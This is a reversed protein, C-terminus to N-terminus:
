VSKKIDYFLRKAVEIAEVHIDSLHREDDYIYRFELYESLASSDDQGDIDELESDPPLSLNVGKALFYAMAQARQSEETVGKGLNKYFNGSHFVRVVRVKQLDDGCYQLSLCIINLLDYVKSPIERETWLIKCCASGIDTWRDKSILGANEFHILANLARSPAVITQSIINGIDSFDAISFSRFDVCDNGINAALGFLFEDSTELEHQIIDTDLSGIEGYQILTRKLAALYSAFQAGENSSPYDLSRVWNFAHKIFTARLSGVKTDEVLKFILFYQEYKYSSLSIAHVKDIAEVLTNTCDLHFNDKLKKDIASFNKIVTGLDDTETWKLVNNKLVDDIRLSFGKVELLKDLAEPKEGIFAEAIEKDLLVEDACNTDVNFAMAALNRDLEPDAALELVTQDLKETSNLVSPNNILSDYHVLFAAATPLPFTGQHLVHLRSLDNVFAIVQRPTIVKNNFQLLKCLIRYCRFAQDDPVEGIAEELKQKFFLDANSLVPPAVMLIEHFTKSLLESSSISSLELFDNTALDSSEKHIPNDTEYNYTNRLIFKRDYPVITTLKVEDSLHSQYKDRSIISRVLSWYKPLDDSPLRDINDLVFIIKTEERQIVKLAKDLISQFEYDNPDINKISQKVKRDPIQKFNLLLIKSSEMQFTNKYKGGIVQKGAVWIVPITLAFLPLMQALIILIDFIDLPSPNILKFSHNLWSYYIPAFPLMILILIAYLDLKPTTTTEIEREIRQFDQHIDNLEQDKDPFNTIAWEIYHNLLSRRFDSGQSKWIDFTFFRYKHKYKCKEPNLSKEAMRVISSKGIGWSGEIGISLNGDKNKKIINVLSNAVREHGKGEFIDKNVPEDRINKRSIQNQM